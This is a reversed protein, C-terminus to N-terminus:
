SAQWLIVPFADGPRERTSPIGAVARREWIALQPSDEFLDSDSLVLSAECCFGFFEAQSAGKLFDPAVKLSECLCSLLIV